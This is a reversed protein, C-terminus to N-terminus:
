VACAACIPTSPVPTLSAFVNRTSVVGGATVSTWGTSPASVASLVGVNEPAAPSAIPSSPETHTRMRPSVPSSCNAAVRAPAVHDTVGASDWASTGPVYLTTAWCNSSADLVPWLAVWM